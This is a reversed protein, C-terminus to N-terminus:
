LCVLGFFYSLFDFTKIVMFLPSLLLPNCGALRNHEIVFIMCVVRYIDNIVIDINM